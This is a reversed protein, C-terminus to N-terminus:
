TTFRPGVFRDIAGQEEFLVTVADITDAASFHLLMLQHGQYSRGDAQAHITSLGAVHHEGEMWDDWKTVDLTGATTQALERLHAVVDDPGTFLGSLASNGPVRHVVHPSLLTIAQSLDGRLVHTLFQQAAALRPQQPSNSM